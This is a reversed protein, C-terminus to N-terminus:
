ASSVVELVPRQHEALYRVAALLRVMDDGFKGLGTNCESCLLDRPLGTVHDHDIALPKATNTGTILHREPQGCLACVEGQAVLKAVYEEPTLLSASQRLYKRREPTLKRDMAQHRDCFGVRGNPWPCGDDGCKERRGANARLPTM